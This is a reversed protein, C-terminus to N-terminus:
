TTDEQPENNALYATDNRYAHMVHEVRGARQGQAVATAARVYVSRPYPRQPSHCRPAGEPTTRKCARIVQAVTYRDPCASTM